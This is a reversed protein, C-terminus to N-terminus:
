WKDVKQHVNKMCTVTESTGLYFTSIHVAFSFLSVNDSLWKGPLLTTLDKASITISGTSVNNRKHKSMVTQINSKTAPLVVPAYGTLQCMSSQDNQCLSATEVYDADERDQIIANRKFFRRISQLTGGKEDAFHVTKKSRKANAAQPAASKRRKQGHNSASSNIKSQQKNQSFHSVSEDNEVGSGNTFTATSFNGTNLHMCEGDTANNSIEPGVHSSIDDVVADFHRHEDTPVNVNVSTSESAMNQACDVALVSQADHLISSDCASEAVTAEACHVVGTDLIARHKTKRSHKRSTKVTGFPRQNIELALGSDRPLSVEVAKYATELNIQLQELVEISNCLYTCDTLLRLTQRCNSAVVNLSHPLNESCAHEDQEVINVVTNAISPSMSAQNETLTNTVLNQEHVSSSRPMNILENDITFFPSDRYQPCLNDWKYDTNQFVALMHKCPWHYNRWDYCTCNPMCDNSGLSVNYLRDSDVSLVTFLSSNVQKVNSRPIESALTLRKCVHNVFDRPRNRLFSPIEMNYERYAESFQM